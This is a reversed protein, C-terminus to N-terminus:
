PLTNLDCDVAFTDEDLFCESSIAEADVDILPVADAIISEGDPRQTVLDVFDGFETGTETTITSEPNASLILEGGDAAVMRIQGSLPENVGVDFTRSIPEVTNITVAVGGSLQNAVVGNADLDFSRLNSGNPIQRDLSLSVDELSNIPEVGVTKRYVSLEVIRTNGTGFNAASFARTAVTGSVEYRIDEPVNMSFGDWSNSHSSRNGRSPDFAASEMILNGDLQYDGAAFADGAEVHRCENFTFADYDGITSGGRLRGLEYLMQGGGNCTYSTIQSPTVILEPGFGNLTEFTSGPLPAAEGADAIEMALERVVLSLQDVDVGALSVLLDQGIVDLAVPEGSTGPDIPTTDGVVVGEFRDGTSLNIVNYTGPVVECSILGECFSEFTTSDQVQYINDDDPVIITNGVVMIGGDDPTEAIGGTEDVSAADSQEGDFGIFTVEYRYAVGSVRTDDFLSTGNTIGIVEGNRRVETTDILNTQSSRDWFLEGATESYVDLRLNSPPLLTDGNSPPTVTGGTTTVTVNAAASRQGNVDIAIVDVNILQGAELDDTFYSTGDTIAVVAGDISVEYSLTQETNRDWFVEAASASYATAFLNAPPTPRGDVDGGRVGGTLNVSVAESREADNDVAIVSFTTTVGDTLNDAFFSLADRSAVLTGDQLIEYEVVVGDSDTSRSWFIEGATNSYVDARLNGPASPSEALALQPALATIAALCVPSLTRLCM